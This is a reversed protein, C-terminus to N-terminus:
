KRREPVPVGAACVFDGRFGVIRGNFVRGLSEDDYKPSIDLPCLPCDCNRGARPNRLMGTPRCCGVGERGGGVPPPTEGAVPLRSPPPRKGGRM